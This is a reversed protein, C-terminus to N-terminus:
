RVPSRTRLLRERPSRRASRLVPPRSTNSRPPPLSTSRSSSSRWWSTRTSPTSCTLTARLATPWRSRSRAASLARSRRRSRTRTAGMNSLCRTPTRAACSRRLRASSATSGLRSRRITPPRPPSLKLLVAAASVSRPAAMRRIWRRWSSPTSRPRRRLPSTLTTRPRHAFCPLAVLILTRLAPTSTRARPSLRRSLTSTSCLSTSRCLTRSPWPPRTSPTAASPSSAAM